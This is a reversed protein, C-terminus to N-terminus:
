VRKYVGTMSIVGNTRALGGAVEITPYGQNTTLGAAGLYQNPDDKSGCITLNTIPGSSNEFHFKLAFPVEISEYHFIGKGQGNAVNAETIEIRAELAAHEYNGVLSNASNAM